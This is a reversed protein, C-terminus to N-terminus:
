AVVCNTSLTNLLQLIHTDVNRRGQEEHSWRPRGSADGIHNDTLQFVRSSTNVCRSGAAFQCDGVHIRYVEVFDKEVDFVKVCITAVRLCRQSKSTFCVVTAYGNRNIHFLIAM